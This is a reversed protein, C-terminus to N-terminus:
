IGFEQECRELADALRIGSEWVVDPSFKLSIESGSSAQRGEKGNGCPMGCLSVVAIAVVLVAITFATRQM